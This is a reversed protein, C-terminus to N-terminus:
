QVPEECVNNNRTFYEIIIVYNETDGNESGLGTIFVRSVFLKHGAGPFPSRERLLENM